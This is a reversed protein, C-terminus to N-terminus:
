GASHPRIAWAAACVQRLAAMSGHELAAQSPQGAAVHWEDFWPEIACARLRHAIETVAAKDVSNYSLFVAHQTM